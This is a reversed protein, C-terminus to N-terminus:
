SESNTPTVSSFVQKSGRHRSAEAVDEDATIASLINMLHEINRVDLEIYIIYYDAREEFFKIDTINAKQEGILSCIKGLVGAKNLLTVIVSSSYGETGFKEPWRLDLWNENKEEFDILQQCDIAHILVGKGKRSIGVIREGPLPKCCKATKGKAGAPLGVFSIVDSSYEPLNEGKFMEPYILKMLEIGTLEAAGLAALIDDATKSGIKKAATVLARETPKKNVKEFANRAIANGLRINEVRREHKLSRRIASKARGTLVMNEWNIQPRQGRATIIKVSQGNRLRTYLPVRKGDVETGVCHDGIRTHISYAFDLPTAGRPLKIVEGTPTFCFVKDNYMELKVHELFDNPNEAAEFGDTLSRAWSLPDVAFPNEFLEGDRFSWHAAVGGEAVENMEKTRIQVEVRKGDRGLVTTHLSRYGNSKPQSIYDKFRGPVARWRQHVAGLATYADGESNTIIRFAFIDSLRTFSEKKEELKRWISYPRKERGSVIADVSVLSLEKQIDKIIKPVLDVNVNKLKLFRRMISNRAEPNLVRFCIDEFEERISQMGMRGALPAFIEMTENAKRLQKSVPLAKITRMNHLRDALKVLLIRLDKSMSVIFKRFNEAQKTEGSSIQLNTLKTVGDVLIAISDGFNSKVEKISLKTDEITDHLIATAITTDDLRQGILIKAVEIPHNFYKEGSARFQGEHYNKGYDYARAILGEDCKPNYEKILNILENSNLM